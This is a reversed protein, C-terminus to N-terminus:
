GAIARIRQRLEEIHVRKIMFGTSLTPDTYPSTSYGLRSAADDLYTRLEQIHIAKIIDITPVLAPDIWPAPTLGAVVRLADVAQRLEIIHARSVKTVSVVVTDDAFVTPLYAFANPKSYEAGSVPSLDIEVAGVSHAPTTVTIVSTDGGGNTYSWSASVNAMTVMSLGSFAGTLRIQQGGSTRGASASLSDIRLASNAASQVVSFLQGAITISGTRFTSNPNANVSYNLTGNGVGSSGSNITIWSANTQSAWGCGGAATVQVNRTGGDRPFSQGTPSILTSATATTQASAEVASGLQEARAMGEGKVAVLSYSDQYCYNRIQQGGLAEIKQFFPEIYSNNLHVCGNPPFNDLGGEDAVAIMILTDNPLSDLFINMENLATGSDRTLYTDFHQVPQRLAGTCVDFAAVNFGRGGSLSCGTAMYLKAGNEFFWAAGCQGGYEAARAGRSVARYNVTGNPQYAPDFAVGFASYVSRPHRDIDVIGFFEENAFDDPHGGLLVFGSTQQSGAPAVKWWEDNWEFIFGGLAVKDPDNASLNKLLNNWESLNWQAQLTEDLGGPVPEGQAASRYVDTGFEGILMPKSTIARWQEFLTGFTNGRYINLAWADVSPCDINVYKRTDALRQGDANIDIDGYSTMVPHNSDLSKILAAATETRQAANQISSAVGFYRNINWESGLMWGLIAPHNKYFNVAQQVRTTDNIGDDITMVVMIGNNYLQDLVTVGTADFGPDIFTRVTNVKMNKLLPIDTPAWLGFEPRRVAANNPDTKSTNTTKSAPAWDVGRIVYPGAPALSRDPNRKSLILQRGNISVVSPGLTSPQANKKDAKGAKLGQSRRGPEIALTGTEVIAIMSVAVTLIKIGAFGKMPKDSSEAAYEGLSLVSASASNKM